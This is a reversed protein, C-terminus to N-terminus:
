VKGLFNTIQTILAAECSKCCSSMEIETSTVKQVKAGFVKCCASHGTMKEIKKMQKGTLGPEVLITQHKSFGDPDEEDRIAKPYVLSYDMKQRWIVREPILDRLLNFLM